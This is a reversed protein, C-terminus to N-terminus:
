ILILYIYMGVMSINIVGLAFDREPVSSNEQVHYLIIPVSFTGITFFIAAACFLKSAKINPIHEKIRRGVDNFSSQSMLNSFKYTFATSEEVMSTKSHDTASLETMQVDHFPDPQEMCGDKSGM